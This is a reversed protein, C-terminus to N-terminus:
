YGASKDVIYELPQGNRFREFNEIFQNVALEMWGVTHDACHPSLLVNEM